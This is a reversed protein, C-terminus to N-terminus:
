DKPKKGEAAPVAKDGKNHNEIIEVKFAPMETVGIEQRDRWRHPARNKLWFIQGTINGKVASAFLADEVTQTRSDLIELVKDNLETDKKRWRWFNSPDIGAGKCAKQFSAGKELSTLIATIKGKKLTANM